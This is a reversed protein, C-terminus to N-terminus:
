RGRRAVAVAVGGAVVVGGVILWTSTRKYWPKAAAGIGEKYGQDVPPRSPRGWGRNIVLREAVMAPTMTCARDAPCGGTGAPCPQDTSLLPGIVQVTSGDPLAVQSSCTRMLTGAPVIQGDVVADAMLRVLSGGGASAAQPVPRYEAPMDSDRYVLGCYWGGGAQYWSGYERSWEFAPFWGIADRQARMADRAAFDKGFYSAV